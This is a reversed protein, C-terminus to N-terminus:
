RQDVRRCILRHAIPLGAHHNAISRTVTAQSARKGLLGCRSSAGMV